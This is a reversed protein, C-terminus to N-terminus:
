FIEWEQQDKTCPFIIWGNLIIIIFIIWILILSNMMKLKKEEHIHTIVEPKLHKEFTNKTEFLILNIKKTEFFWKVLKLVWNSNKL